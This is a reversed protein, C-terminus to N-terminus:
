RNGVNYVGTQFTGRVGVCQSGSKASVIYYYTTNRQLELSLNITAVQSVTTSNDIYLLNTYSPDTGYEITCTYGPESMCEVSANVTNTSDVCVELDANTVGTSFTNVVM